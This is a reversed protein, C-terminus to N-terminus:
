KLFVKNISYKLSIFGDITLFYLYKDNVMNGLCIASSNVEDVIIRNSDHSNLNLINLTNKKSMKTSKYFEESDTYSNNKNKSIDAYCFHVNDQYNIFVPDTMNSWGTESYSPIGKMISINGEVASVLLFGYNNTGSGAHTTGSRSYAYNLISKIYFYISDGQILYKISPILEVKNLKKRPTMKKLYSPDIQVNEEKVLEGKKNYFKWKLVSSHEGTKKNEYREVFAAGINGKQTVYLSAPFVSHSFDTVAVIRKVANDIIWLEQRYAEDGLHKFKEDEIQKSKRKTKIFLLTEGQNNVISNNIKIAQCNAQEETDVIPKINVELNSNVTLFLIKDYKYIMGTHIYISIQLYSSDPSYSIEKSLIKQGKTLTHQFIETKSFDNNLKFIKILRKRKVKQVNFILKENQFSIPEYFHYKTKDVESSEQRELNKNFKSYRNKARNSTHIELKTASHIWISSDSLLLKNVYADTKKLDKSEFGYSSQSTGITTLNIIFLLIIVSRLTFFLNNRISKNRVQITNNVAISKIIQNENVYTGIKVIM